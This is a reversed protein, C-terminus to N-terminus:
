SMHPPSNMHVAAPCLIIEFLAPDRDVFLTENGLADRQGPRGQFSCLARFYDVSNLTDLTTEFVRGGVNVRLVGSTIGLDEDEERPRKPSMASSPAPAYSNWFSSNSIALLRV